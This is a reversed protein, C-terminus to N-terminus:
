FRNYLELTRKKVYKGDQQLAGCKKHVHKAFKNSKCFMFLSFFSYFHGCM